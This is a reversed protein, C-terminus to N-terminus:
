ITGKEGTFTMNGRDIVSVSNEKLVLNYKSRLSSFAV